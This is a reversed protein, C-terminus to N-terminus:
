QDISRNSPQNIKRAQKTKVGEKEISSEWDKGDKGGQVMMVKVRVKWVFRLVVIM